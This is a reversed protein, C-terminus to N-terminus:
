NVIVYLTNSDKTTLADYETQTLKVLSLGGLATSAANWRTKETPTSLSGEVRKLLGSKTAVNWNEGGLSDDIMTRHAFSNTIYSFLIFMAVNSTNDPISIRMPSQYYTGYKIGLQTQKLGVIRYTDKVGDNLLIYFHESDRSVNLYTNSSNYYTTNTGVTYGNLNYTIDGTLMNMLVLSWSVSSRTGGYRFLDIIHTPPFWEVYDRVYGDETGANGISMWFENYTSSSYAASTNTSSITDATEGTTISIGNGAILEKSSGGGGGGGTASIVNGSIEIGTGASLTDQKGNWTAKESSTVHVTTDATHATLANNVETVASSDAKGSVAQTIASETQASTYYQSLDAGSADTIVYFTNPDKTSLADYESQTLSVTKTASSDEISYTTGSLRIQNIKAM